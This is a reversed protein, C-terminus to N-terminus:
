HARLKEFERRLRDYRKVLRSHEEILKQSEYNLRQLERLMEETPNRSVSQHRSPKRDQEQMACGLRASTPSLVAYRRSPVFFAGIRALAVVAGVRRLNKILPPHGVYMTVSPARTATTYNALLQRTGKDVTSITICQQGDKYDRCPFACM